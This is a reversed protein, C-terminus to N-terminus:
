VHTARLIRQYHPTANYTALGLSDARELKLGAKEASACLREYSYICMIHEARWPHPVGCSEAVAPTSENFSFLFKGDGTLYDAVAQFCAEMAPPQLHTYVSYAFIFDFATEFYGFNFDGNDYLTPDYEMLGAPELEKEVGLDIMGQDIDIGYYNGHHLYPIVHLGLRFTGCGLDLFKHSPLLGEDKLLELQEKGHSWSESGIVADRHWGPYSPRLNDSAVM